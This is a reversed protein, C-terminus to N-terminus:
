WSSGPDDGPDADARLGIDKNGKVPGRGMTRKGQLGCTHLGVCEEARAVEGARERRGPTKDEVSM